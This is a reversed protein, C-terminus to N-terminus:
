YRRGSYDDYGGGKGTGHHYDEYPLSSRLDRPDMPMSTRPDRTDIPLSNRSDKSLDRPDIPATGRPEYTREPRESDVGRSLDQLREWREAERPSSFEGTFKEDDDTGRRHSRDDRRKGDRPDRIDLPPPPPPFSTTSAHFSPMFTQSQAGYSSSMSSFPPSLFTSGADIDHPDSNSFSKLPPSSTRRGGPRLVPTYNQSATSQTRQHRPETGIDLPHRTVRSTSNARYHRSPGRHNVSETHVKGAGPQATYPHREREIKITEDVVTSDLASPSGSYPMRERELPKIKPETPSIKPQPVEIPRTRTQSSSTTRSLPPSTISRKSRRPTNPELDEFFESIAKEVHKRSKRDEKPPLLHRSIQKPLREPKGDVMEGDADIPMAEVVKQLRKTEEEPYSLIFITMWHAFGVPTLAPINPDM